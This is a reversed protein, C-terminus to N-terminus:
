RNNVIIIKHFFKTNSLLFFILPWPKNNDFNTWGLVPEFDIYFWPLDIYNLYFQM